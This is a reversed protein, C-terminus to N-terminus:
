RLLGEYGEYIERDIDKFVNFVVKEVSTRTALQEVTSVAVRAPQWDCVRGAARRSSIESSRASVLANSSVIRRGEIRERPCRDKM